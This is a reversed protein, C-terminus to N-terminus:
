FCRAKDLLSHYNSMKSFVQKILLFLELMYLTHMRVQARQTPITTADTVAMRGSAVGSPILTPADDVFEILPKRAAPPETEEDSASDASIDSRQLATIFEAISAPLVTEDPEDFEARSFTPRRVKSAAASVVQLSSAMEVTVDQLPARSCASAESVPASAPVPLFPEPFSALFSSYAEQKPAHASCYLLVCQFISAIFLDITFASLRACRRTCLLVVSM